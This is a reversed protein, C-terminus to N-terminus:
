VQMGIVGPCIAPSREGKAGDTDQPGAKGAASPCRSRALCGAGVDTSSSSFLYSSHPIMQKPHTHAAQVQKLEPNTAAHGKSPRM